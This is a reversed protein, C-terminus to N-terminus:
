FSFRVGCKYNHYICFIEDGIWVIQWINRIPNPLLYAITTHFIIWIGNLFFFKQKSPHNGFIPNGEQFGRERYDGTYLFTYTQWADISLTGIFATQLITDQTDWDSAYIPFSMILIIILTRM